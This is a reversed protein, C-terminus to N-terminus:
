LKGKPLKGIRKRWEESLTSKEVLDRKAWELYVRKEASFRPMERGLWSAISSACQKSAEMAVLHGIGPLVAEEVRGIKAGGSGGFGAGTVKMKVQRSHPSSMVSEGGFIYLVSPRLEGLRAQTNPPEPRYFHSEVVTGPILDPAMDRRVLTKGDESMAPWAPRLYTFCEQHKTTTLTASGHEKPYIATPTERIGYKCWRDMVRPDWSQYFKRGRFAAEADARSPWFDRRWTSQQAPHLGRSVSAHSEHDQIVPDLLVLTSLLRPHIYALNVLINAGLSHGVGVIPMPIEARFHNIM